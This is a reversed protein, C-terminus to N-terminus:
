HPHVRRDRPHGRVPDAMVEGGTRLRVRGIANLELEDAPERELTTM